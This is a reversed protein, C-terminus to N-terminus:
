LEGSAIAVSALVEASAEDATTPHQVREYLVRWRLVRGQMSSPALAVDVERAAGDVFLRDDQVTGLKTKRSLVIEGGAGPVGIVEVVVRLRRFLDGTPFAHGVDRPAFRFTVGVNTRLAAVRAARRLWTEDRASAFRHDAGGDRKPMHCDMCSRDRHMSARHETATLQMKAHGDPFDFEHCSACSRTPRGREHCTVCGVGLAARAPEPSEPSAEPAHCATCFPLPELAFARQYAADSHSARHLSGRWAVAERAHCGECAANRTVADGGVEGPHAGPHELRAAIFAASGNEATRSAHPATCAALLVVLPRWRM